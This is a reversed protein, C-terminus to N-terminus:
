ANLSALLARELTLASSDLASFSRSFIKEGVPNPLSPSHFFNSFVHKSFSVPSHTFQTDDKHVLTSMGVAVGIFYAQESLSLLLRVSTSRIETEPANEKQPQVSSFVPQNQSKKYLFNEM